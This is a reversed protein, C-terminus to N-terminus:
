TYWHECYCGSVSYTECNQDVMFQSNSLVSM